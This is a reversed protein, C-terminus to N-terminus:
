AANFGHVVACAAKTELRNYKKVGRIDINM